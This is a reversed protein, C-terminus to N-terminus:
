GPGCIAVKGDALGYGTLGPLPECAIGLPVSGSGALSFVKRGDSWQKLVYGNSSITIILPVPPAITITKTPINSPGSTGGGAEIAFVRFCYTGPALNSITLSTGAGTTASTGTVTGFATGSCTGYEVETSGIQASTLASGDTRTTPNTWTVVAQGAFASGALLFLALAGLMVIAMLIKTHKV